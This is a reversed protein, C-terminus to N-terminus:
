DFSERQQQDSQNGTEMFDSTFLDTSEILNQWPNHYPIIYISNGIKKIFVTDDDIRMELPISIAQRGSSNKIKITTVGM